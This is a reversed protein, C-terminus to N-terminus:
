ECEQLSTNVPSKLMSCPLPVRSTYCVFADRKATLFSHSFPAINVLVLITGAFTRRHGPQSGTWDCILTKLTIM